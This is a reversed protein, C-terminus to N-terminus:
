FSANLSAWFRRGEVVTNYADPLVEEDFLNYITGNVTLTDNIQYSAGIDATFYGPYRRAVIDGDGNFVPSGNAGVRLGANIQEGEYFGAAFASLGEIPTLWDVRLNAAHEPTRTLPLGDYAGGKQRSDTYTYSAIVSVTDTADFGLTFEAGRIVASDINFVRFLTYNPDIDWRAFSGDANYVRDNDIKDDFDTYFLTAGATFGALDDFLVAAEYNTSTEPSLDENSVIVGCPNRSGRRSEPGYFCGGGGTTYAYDPAISRIDPARFGTSIGGKFTWMDLPRWVGYLRPSLNEEYIEHYDLRVGGTLAFTDTIQWEDEVFVAYQYLGFNEDLGTRRGPNQDSLDNDIYQSGLTLRHGGLADFPIIAKLDGVTNTIEPSRPNELFRSLGAEENLTVREGWERQLSATVEGWRYAGEYNARLHDRSNSGIRGLTGDALTRGASSTQELRTAGGELFFRHDLNPAYSLRATFDGEERETEGAILRDEGRKYARGWVQLGLIDQMLPTAAYLQAQGANGHRGSGQALAEVTISAAPEAPVARTIINIVGGVADSGYLTSAPGRVVEIREIANLPPIFSQEFGASGNPRADRTGQRVGDVLILTYQGPLGRISIDRENAVGTVSVGQVNRLADTLDRFQGRDLDQRTIVSISAPADAVTQEFGSATVVVTDLAISQGQAATDDVAPESEAPVDAVAQAHALTGADLAIASMGVIGAIWQRRRSRTGRM